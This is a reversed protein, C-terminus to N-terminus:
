FGKFQKFLYGLLTGYNQVVKYNFLNRYDPFLSMPVNRVIHQNHPYSLNNPMASKLRQTYFQEQASIGLHPYSHWASAPRVSCCCGGGSMLLM